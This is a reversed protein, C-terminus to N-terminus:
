PTEEQRPRMPRSQPAHQPHLWQNAIGSPTRRRPNTQAAPFLRVDLLHTNLAPEVQARLQMSSALHMMFRDIARHLLGPLVPADRGLLALVSDLFMAGAHEEAAATDFSHTEIRSEADGPHLRAAIELKTDLEGEVWRGQNRDALLLWVRAGIEPIGRTGLDVFALGYPPNALLRPMVAFRTM